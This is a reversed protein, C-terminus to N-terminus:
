FAGVFKLISYSHMNKAYKLLIKFDKFFKKANFIIVMFIGWKVFM